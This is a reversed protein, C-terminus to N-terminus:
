MERIVGTVREREEAYGRSERRDTLVDRGEEVGEVEAVYRDLRRKLRRASVAKCGCPEFRWCEPPMRM